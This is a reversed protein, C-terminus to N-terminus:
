HALVQNKVVISECVRLTVRGAYSCDQVIWQLTCDLATHMHEVTNAAAISPPDCMPLIVCECYLENFSSEWVNGSDTLIRYYPEGEKVRFFNQDGRQGM